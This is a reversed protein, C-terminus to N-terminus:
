LRADTSWTQWMERYAAEVNRASRRGDVARDRLRAIRVMAEGWDPKLEGVHEARHYAIAQGFLKATMTWVRLWDALACSDGLM